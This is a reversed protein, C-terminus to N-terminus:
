GNVSSHYQNERIEYSGYTNYFLTRDRYQKYKELELDIKRINQKLHTNGKKEWEKLIEAMSM